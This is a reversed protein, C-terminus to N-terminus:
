DALRLRLDSASLGLRKRLLRQSDLPWLEILFLLSYFPFLAHIQRRDSCDNQNNDLLHLSVPRHVLSPVINSAKSGVRRM